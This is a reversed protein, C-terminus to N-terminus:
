KSFVKRSYSYVEEMFAPTTLGSSSTGLIIPKGPESYFDVFDRAAQRQGAEDMKPVEPDSPIIGFIMQDGYERYLTKVDNMTQPTWGDFGGEIFIKTRNFNHGCSHLYAIRGQ